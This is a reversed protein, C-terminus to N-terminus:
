GGEDPKRVGRVAPKRGPQGEYLYTVGARAYPQRAHVEGVPGAYKRFRYLAEVRRSNTEEGAVVGVYDLQHVCVCLGHEDAFAELADLLASVARISRHEVTLYLYDTEVDELRRYGVDIRRAIIAGAPEEDAFAIFTIDEDLADHMHQAAHEEDFEDTRGREEAFSKLLRVLAPHDARVARRVTMAPKAAAAEPVPTGIPTKPHITM